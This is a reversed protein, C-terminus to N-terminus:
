ANNTVKIVRRKQNSKTDGEILRVFTFTAGPITLGGKEKARHLRIFHFILQPGSNQFPAFISPKGEVMKPTHSPLFHAFFPNKQRKPSIQLHKEVTKPMM